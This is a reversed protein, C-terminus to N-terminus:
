RYFDLTYFHNYSRVKIQKLGTVINYVMTDKKAYDYGGPVIVQDSTTDAVEYFRLFTWYRSTSIKIGGNPEFGDDQINSMEIWLYDLSDASQFHKRVAEHYTMTGFRSDGLVHKVIEGGVLLFTDSQISDTYVMHITDQSYYDKPFLKIEDASLRNVYGGMDDRCSHFGAGLLLFLVFVIKM